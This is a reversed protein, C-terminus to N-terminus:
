YLKGYDFFQRISLFNILDQDDNKEISSQFGM